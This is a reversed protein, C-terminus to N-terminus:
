KRLLEAINSKEPWTKNYCKYGCDRCKKGNCECAGANIASIVKSEDFYVTFVYDFYKPLKETRDVFVSSKILIVNSPKGFTDCAKIYPLAYKTWVAVNARKNHAIAYKIMNAAYIDNSADGSSNVRVFGSGPLMALEEVTFEVTEMILLNLTHRALANVKYQEQKFDYCKGCIIDKEPYMAALARMKVCFRCNTASSDLSFVGEIKGSEHYAVNYVNLLQFRDASTLNEIGKEFISKVIELDKELKGPKGSKTIECPFVYGFMEINKYEKM